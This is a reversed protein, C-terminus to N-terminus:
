IQGNGSANDNCYRHKIGVVQGAFQRVLLAFFHRKVQPRHFVETIGIIFVRLEAVEGQMKLDQLGVGGDRDHHDVVPSPDVVEDVDPSVGASHPQLSLYFPHLCFPEFGDFPKRIGDVVFFGGQQGLQAVERQYLEDEDGSKDPKTVHAEVGGAAGLLVPHPHAHGLLRGM